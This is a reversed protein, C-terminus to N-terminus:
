SESQGSERHAQLKELLSQFREDRKSLQSQAHISGIVQMLVAKETPGAAAALQLAEILLVVPSFVNRVIQRRRADDLIELPLVGMNASIVAFADAPQPLTSTLNSM